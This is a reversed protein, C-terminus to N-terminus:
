ALLQGLRIGSSEYSYVGHPSIAMASTQSSAPGRQPSCADHHQWTGVENEEYGITEDNVTRISLREFGSAEISTRAIGRQLGYM